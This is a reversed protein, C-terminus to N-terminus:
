CADATLMSDPDKCKGLGSKWVYETGASNVHCSCDTTTVTCDPDAPTCGSKCGDGAACTAVKITEAPGFCGCASKVEDNTPSSIGTWDTYFGKLTNSPLGQCGLQTYPQCANLFAQRKQMSESAGAFGGMFFAAVALLIIVAIAVVVLTNIPLEIGKRM